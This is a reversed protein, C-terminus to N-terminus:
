WLLYGILVIMLAVLLCVDRGHLGRVPWTQQSPVDGPGAEMEHLCNRWDLDRQGIYDLVLRLRVAFREASLGCVRLPQVLIYLSNVWDETSLGRLMLSVVSVVALLRAAPELTARVGDWTPSLAGLPPVIMVGPTQWAFLIVLALFIYRLRRVVRLWERRAFALACLVVAATAWPLVAAGVVQLLFILFFGATVHVAPHISKM